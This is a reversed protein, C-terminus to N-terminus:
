IIEIKIIISDSTWGPNIDSDNTDDGSNKSTFIYGEKVTDMDIIISYSGAELGCFEYKGGADTTVTRNTDKLTINVDAVGGERSDQQGNKNNDYWIFDGLCYTLKYLGGDLTTNNADKITITDSVGTFNIDSDKAEDTQNQKTVVYGDPITITISYGGNELGCFEYYGSSNTETSANTENLIIKVEGIGAENDDQIGDKNTDEWIDIV